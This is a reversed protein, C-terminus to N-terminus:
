RSICVSERNRARFTINNGGTFGTNKELRILKFRKRESFSKIINYSGDTSGNDVVIVEYNPYDLDALAQLSRLALNIFNMSNYNVWLISVKPYKM